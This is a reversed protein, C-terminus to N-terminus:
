LDRQLGIKIGHHKKYDSPSLGHFNKFETRFYKPDAYGIADAVEVIPIDEKALLLRAAKEMLYKKIYENPRQHTVAMVKNYFSTRSMGMGKFMLAVTIKSGKMLSEEILNDLKKLFEMDPAKVRSENELTEADEKKMEVTSAEGTVEATTEKVKKNISKTTHCIRTQLISRKLLAMGLLVVLLLSYFEDIDEVINCTKANCLIGIMMTLWLIFKM